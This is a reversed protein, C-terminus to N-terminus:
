DIGQGAPGVAADIDPTEALEAQAQLTFPHLNAIFQRTAAAWSYREAFRRVEVRDIKLAALCAEKLDNSLAGPGDAGIVDIPGTVPYAAVPCGCAMAELLVLGFTDTRSPFVFVDAANYVKALEEQNLVGLWNADPYRVRLQAAAPGDGCVWKSGPLDLELFAEVNKEVAVRGVYVFMPKHSQLFDRPGPKFNELDVGRSWHVATTFGWAQLDEIVVRTPAMVAKAANHFRRFWRYSWGLPIGFRLQVYEPFRSHYATTFPLGHRLCYKRACMGLPGETAIHIADPEFERLRKAVKRRPFLSLRIEPYTPCPLTTFELPTLLDVVHGANELEARTQKLTRVVGNVQPEWADTIIMIKM